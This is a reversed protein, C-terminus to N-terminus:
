IFHELRLERLSADRWGQLVKVAEEHGRRLADRLWKARGLRAKDIDDAPGGYLAMVHDMQELTDRAHVDDGALVYTYAKTELIPDDSEDLRHSDIYQLLTSPTGTAAFFSPAQESISALVDSSLDTAAGRPIDWGPTGSAKNILQTSFNGVL